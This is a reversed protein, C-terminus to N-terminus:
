IRPAAGAQLRERADALGAPDKDLDTLMCIEGTSAIGGITGAGVPMLPLHDPFRSPQDPAGGPAITGGAVAYLFREEAAAADAAVSCPEDSKGILWIVVISAPPGSLARQALKQLLKDLSREQAMELFLRAVFEYDIPRPVEAEM